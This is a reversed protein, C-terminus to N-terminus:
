WVYTVCGAGLRKGGTATWATVAVSPAVVIATGASLVLLQSPTTLQAGNDIATGFGIWVGNTLTRATAPLPITMTIANSTGNTGERVNVTIETATAAWQYVTATPVASYGTPTPAYTFWKPFGVADTYSYYNASIAANAITYDANVLITVTTNPASYTSGSVVGYKVTTQTWKIRTGKVYTGTWDGPLTFTSASAYSWLANAPNWGNLAQYPYIGTQGLLADQLAQGGAELYELVSELTKLYAAITKSPRGNATDFTGGLYIDTGNFFIVYCKAGAGTLGSGMM